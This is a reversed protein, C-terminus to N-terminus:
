KDLHINMHPYAFAISKERFINQINQNITYKSPWYRSAPTWVQLVYTIASEGYERAGAFPPAPTDLVDELQAAELLAETVSDIPTDFGVSVTIDLRRTGSTSYNIIEAAVVSSNPISITKSDPTSLTTYTLGVDQVTGSQGAIEVYDGVVFPKTYLLTFGGIVNTLATQVSLSIALTLVSALAVIGTVDIGVSSAVVLSLLIYLVVRLLSNALKMLSQDLKTKSLATNLVKMILRIAFYGIVFIIIAPFLKRLAFSELDGVRAILWQKM